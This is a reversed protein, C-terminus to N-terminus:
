GSLAGLRKFSLLTVVVGLAGLWVGVADVFGALAVLQYVSGSLGGLAGTVASSVQDRLLSFGTYTIAGVGLAAAGKKVWAAIGTGVFTAWSAM